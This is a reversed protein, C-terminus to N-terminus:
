GPQSPALNCESASQCPAAPEVETGYIVADLEADSLADLLRPGTSFTVRKYLARAWKSRATPGDYALVAVALRRILARNRAVASREFLGVLEDEGLPRDTSRLLDGLVEERFWPRRLVNRQTGIMRDIHMQPFRCVAVDPFVVLTLFSWTEDHAADAPIIRLHEHLTRGLALDFAAVQTSPVTDMLGWPEIAKLVAARVDAIQESSAVRGGTAVPTARPHETRALVQVGPLGGGNSMTEAIESIRAKAFPFPLRLYVFESM